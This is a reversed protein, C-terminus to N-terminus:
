HLTHGLGTANEDFYSRVRAKIKATLEDIAADAEDADPALNHFVHILVVGLTAVVDSATTGPCWVAQRVREVRARAEEIETMDNTM